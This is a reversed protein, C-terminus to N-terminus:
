AYDNEAGESDEVTGAGKQRAQEFRKKAVISEVRSQYQRWCANKCDKRDDHDRHNRGADPEDPRIEM